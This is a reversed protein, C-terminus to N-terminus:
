PLLVVRYFRRPDAGPTDNTQLTAGTATLPSGINNWNLQAGNTKFQLQYSRSAISSWSILISGGSKVVRQLVPPAAVINVRFISGFGGFGGNEALTYLNGDPGLVVGSDPYSGTIGDLSASTLTGNTTIQFVVGNGSTGGATTTGYISGDSTQVVGSLPTDGNLGNFQALTTLAGNTTVRFVTGVSGTGAAATTGYFAGDNGLFLASQPDAGDTGGTFSYLTTLNGNTDTKFVTGMGSLGGSSTTGYLMGDHGLALGSYPYSGDSDSFSHLTTLAGNTTIRFVTGFGGAGGGSTTGYMAGNATQVMGAWPTDGDSSNFSYLVSFVGNTTIRYITGFSNLGGGPATGYLGGDLGQILNGEAGAGDLITGSSNTLSGFTHLLTLNGSSSMRFVTGDGFDGGAETTGYFFGDRALLLDASPNAGDDIQPFSFLVALSGNTAVRFVAGADNTGGARTTGYLSGDATQTLPGVPSAGIAGGFNVLSTLNGANPGMATLKFVTGMGLTGGAATTGYLFGDSGLLLRSDPEAGDTGGDEGSFTYLVSLTGNTTVQFVTGSSAAGGFPATGYFSGNAAPILGAAPGIGDLPNGTGPEAFTGFSYLTSFAGNTTIRFITGDGGFNLDNVGGASTTGYLLNDAGQLLGASPSSGDLATGSSFDISAGFSYLTSLIGNTTIRFVTGMNNAGGSFTTGYLGGDKGRILDGQPQAGDLAGGLSNTNTGFSYLVTFTGNTNFKFISGFGKAGGFASVGYLNGAADPLLGALIDNGDAFGTFSYLSKFTGNTAISFVTGGGGNSGGFSTTGYLLGGAGPVLAAVPQTGLPAVAFSHLNTLTFAEVSSSM